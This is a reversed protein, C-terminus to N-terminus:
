QPKADSWDKLVKSIKVALNRGSRGLVGAFTAVDGVYLEALGSVKTPLRILDGVELNAVDNLSLETRGLVARCEMEVDEFARRLIESQPNNSQVPSSVSKGQALVPLIAEIAVSPICISMMSVHEAITVEYACVLVGESPLLVQHTTCETLLAVINPKFMMCTSWSEAYKRLSAEVVRRMVAKDVETITSSAVPSVSPAGALLDVCAAVLSPNFEFVAVSALPDLSVQAFLTPTPLSECYERYTLQDLALLSIQVDQHLMAALEVALVTGHKGHILELARLHEKCFKDPRSFDYLRIQRGSASGTEEAGGTAKYSEILADIEEQSLIDSM